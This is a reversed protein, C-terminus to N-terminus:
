SRSLTSPFSPGEEGVVSVDEDAQRIIGVHQELVDGGMHPDGLASDLLDDSVELVGLDDSSVPFTSAVAVGHTPLHPEPVREFGTQPDAVEEVEHAPTRAKPHCALDRGGNGEELAFGM